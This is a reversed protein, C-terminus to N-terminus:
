LFIHLRILPSWLGYAPLLHATGLFPRDFFLPYLLKTRVKPTTLIVGFASFTDYLLKEDVLTQLMQPSSQEHQWHLKRRAHVTPVPQTVISYCSPLWLKVYYTQTDNGKMINIDSQSSSPSFPLPAFNDEKNSMYFM